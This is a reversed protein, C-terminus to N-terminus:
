KLKILHASACEQDFITTMTIDINRITITPISISTIEAVDITTILTINILSRASTQM